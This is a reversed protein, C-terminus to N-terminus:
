YNNEKRTLEYITGTVIRERIPKTFDLNPTNSSIETVESYILGFGAAWIEQQVKLHILSSDYNHVIHLVSDYLVGNIMRPVHAKGITSLAVSDSNVCYSRSNWTMAERIPLLCKVLRCKGYNETYSGVPFSIERVLRGIPVPTVADKLLTYHGLTTTQSHLISDPIVLLDYEVTDFYNLPADITIQRVAFRQVQGEFFPFYVSHNPPFPVDSKNECGALLVFCACFVFIKSITSM